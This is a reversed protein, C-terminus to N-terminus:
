CLPNGSFPRLEPAKLLLEQGQALVEGPPDGQEEDALVQGLVERPRYYEDGPLLLLLGLRPAGLLRVGQLPFLVPPSSTPPVTAKLHPKIQGSSLFRFDFQVFVYLDLQPNYLVFDIYV